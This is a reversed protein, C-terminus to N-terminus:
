VTSVVAESAGDVVMDLEMEGDTSTEGVAGGDCGRVGECSGADAEPETEAVGTRVVDGDFGDVGVSVAVGVDVRVAALWDAWPV